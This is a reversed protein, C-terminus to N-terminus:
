RPIVPLLLRLRWTRTLHIVGPTAPNIRRATASGALTQQTVFVHGLTETRFGNVTRAPDATRPRHMEADPTGIVIARFDQFFRRRVVIGLTHVISQDQVSFRPFTARVIMGRGRMMLRLGGHTFPRVGPCRSTSQAVGTGNQVGQGGATM